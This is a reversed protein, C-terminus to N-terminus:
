QRILNIWNFFSGRDCLEGTCGEIGFEFSVSEAGSAFTGFANCQNVQSGYVGLEGLSPITCNGTEYLRLTAYRTNEPTAPFAAASLALAVTSALLTRFYM